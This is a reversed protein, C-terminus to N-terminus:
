SGAHGRPDAGAGADGAAAGAGTGTADATAQWFDYFNFWNRPYTRAIAELRAAFRTLAADLAAARQARPMTVRDAFPEFLLRYRNGGLYLGFCLLVPVDLAAALLWPSTPLPAPVGLFPTMRTAEGRRARDALLAVLAGERTAEALALVIATPDRSADIVAAGVEPALSELLATLAPTQAKDLLVRLRGQPFRGALARLAEFSGVHAGLLLVGRGEAHLAELTELGEVEIAFGHTGRALLFVRDLTTAAYCHFQRMVQWASAPRGQLRAYFQRTARREAGRRFFFYLTVPYLILRTLPRGLHLGIGRILWLAFRGGGERRGQWHANM